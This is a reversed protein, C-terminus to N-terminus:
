LLNNIKFCKNYKIKQKEIELDILFEDKKNIPIKLIIKRLDDSCKCNYNKSCNIVEIM